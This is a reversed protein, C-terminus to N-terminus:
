SRVKILMLSAVVSLALFIVFVIFWVKVWRREKARFEEYSAYTNKKWAWKTANAGLVFFMVFGLYPILTLLGIWVKHGIAWFPGWLFAAWNWKKLNEPSIGDAGGINAADQAQLMAMQEPNASALYGEIEKMIEQLEKKGAFYKIYSGLGPLPFNIWAEVSVSGDSFAFTMYKIWYAGKRWEYHKANTKQEYGKAKLFASILRKLDEESKESRIVSKFRAM